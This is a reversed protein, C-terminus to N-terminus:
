VNKQTLNQWMYNKIYFVIVISILILYILNLDKLGYKLFIFVFVVYVVYNMDLNSKITDSNFKSIDM